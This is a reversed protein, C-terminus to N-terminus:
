MSLKFTTLYLFRPLLEQIYEETVPEKNQVLDCLADLVVGLTKPDECKELCLIVIKVIKKFHMVFIQKPAEQLLYGVALLYNNNENAYNQSLTTTIETFFRQRYLLRYFNFLIGSFNASSEKLIIDSHKKLADQIKKFTMVKNTWNQNQPHGRMLLAKAVWSIIAIINQLKNKDVGEDLRKNIINALLQVSLDQIFEEETNLAMDMLYEVLNCEIVVDKHLCTVLSDFLVILTPKCNCKKLALVDHLKPFVIQKQVESNQNSLIIKCIASINFLLMKHGKLNVNIDNLNNVILNLLKSIIEGKNELIIQIKVDDEYKEVLQRLSGVAIEATSLDLGCYYIFINLISETFKDVQVIVALSELYYELSVNNDIKIKNLVFNQVEDGYDEAIVKFCTLLSTRVKDSSKYILSTCFNEYLCKRIELPLSKSILGVSELGTSAVEMNEDISAKLCLYPVSVLEEVTSIDYTNTLQTYSRVFNIINSLILVQHSGTTTINFTNILIPMTEKIIYASAAPSSSSICQLIKCSPTFLKMHPLLNGKLTDTIDSLIPKYINTASNSLKQMVVKLTTLAINELEQDNCNYVERQIQSWIDTSHQIYASLPFVDCGKALVILSDLKAIHLSSSLKELALPLCYEAFEPVACLCGSLAESLTEVNPDQPPARFDIPFYCAVVEFMEETLHGLTVHKLFNPIWEFLFLLNRPDREGDIALIVGYVFDFGMEQIESLKNDVSSKLIKFINLRDIQQQQQCSIKQFMSNLLQKVSEGTVEEYHLLAIIGTLTAPIVQHHDNLRDSYFKCLFNLQETLIQDHPIIELVQSLITMGQERNSPSTDVLLQKLDEVFQIFTTNGQKIENVLQICKKKFEIDDKSLDKFEEIVSKNVNIDM